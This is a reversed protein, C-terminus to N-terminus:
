GEGATARHITAVVGSARQEVAGNQARGRATGRRSRSVRGRPQEAALKEVFDDDDPTAALHILVDIGTVARRVVEPDTISGVLVDDTGGARVVDFARVHYGRSVLERVAARGIRGAAGTVLIATARSM